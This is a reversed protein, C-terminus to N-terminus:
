ALAVMVSVMHLPDPGLPVWRHRAARQVVVDGPDLETRVGGPLELAVRGSMIVDVDITNTTHWGEDGPDRVPLEVSRFAVGGGRPELEWPGDVDGGQVNSVLPGGTQWLDVLRVGARDVSPAVFGDAPDAETVIRRVGGEARSISCPSTTAGIETRLMTVLYVCPRDGVVKWRHRSAQQIVVDGAGLRYEGGDLGLVIEGDLVMVLDLTDTAHLGPTADDDGAVRLWDGPPLSVIRSSLGGAPPELPFGEGSRDGGDHPSTPAADLWLLEAVGFGNPAAVMKSPPGDATVVDGDPGPATVVRRVTFGM